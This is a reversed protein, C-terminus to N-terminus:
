QVLSVSDGDDLIKAYAQQLLQVRTSLPGICWKYGDNPDSPSSPFTTGGIKSVSQLLGVASSQASSAIQFVVGFAVTHVKVPRSATAFGPLGSNSVESNATGPNGNMDNCISQVVQLTANQDYNAATFYSSPLINYYSNVGGNNSFGANTNVNAMGDTELIVLRQAGWRGLGGANANANRLTSSGSLQNYALMLGHQTATNAIFDFDARPAQNGNVDWPRVDAGTSNPPYWLADIMSAYDRNLDYQAQTFRGISPENSYQPRDYIIVSVSDNPHNVQMDQLISSIGLKASYTSIDRATGPNIGTDSIFQLMTMPGFWMRHRPRPPNDKYNMYALKYGRSDPDPGSPRPSIQVTGWAYDPGYSCAPSGPTSVNGFPDRWVGLCYDIYEKWFRQNPDTINSDPQGHDYASAPVDAPIQDYYLIRGARLMPPFAAPGVNKIWDLINKYNIQYHTQGSSSDYPPYWTGGSPNWLVTNDSVAGGGGPNLFYLQRWDLSPRPDPPWMFFTKGWYKPGAVFRSFGPAGFQNRASPAPPTGYSLSSLAYLYDYGQCYQGNYSVRAEFNGYNSNANGFNPDYYTTFGTGFFDNVVQAFNNGSGTINKTVPLDGMPQTGYSAPAATFAATGPNVSSNSQFFSDVLAPVGQAPQTVNCQGGPSSSTSVLATSPSSYHGFAPVVPDTNNSQNNYPGLYSEANWLDSENNMSGSFDLVLTVDRPRHAAVATAVLTQNVAANSAGANVAFFNNRVARQVSVTVLNYNEGAALVNSPSFAQSNTDYHYTGATFAVESSSFGVQAAKGASNVGPATNGAAVALANSQAQSTKASTGGDLTRAGALAAADAANQCQLKVTAITAIEVSLATFGCLAIIMLAVVPLISGRRRGRPRHRTM